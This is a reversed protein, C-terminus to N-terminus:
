QSSNPRSIIGKRLMGYHDGDIRLVVSEEGCYDDDLRVFSLRDREARMTVTEMADFLRGIRVYNERGRKVQQHLRGLNAVLGEDEAM